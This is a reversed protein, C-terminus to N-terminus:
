DLPLHHNKCPHLRSDIHPRPTLAHHSSGGSVRSSLSIQSPYYRQERLRQDRKSEERWREGTDSWWASCLRRLQECEFLKNAGAPASNTLKNQPMRISLKRKRGHGTHEPSGLFLSEAVSKVQAITHFEQLRM